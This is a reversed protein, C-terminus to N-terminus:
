FSQTFGYSFIIHAIRFVFQSVNEKNKGLGVSVNFDILQFMGMPRIQFDQSVRNIAFIAEPLSLSQSLKEVENIAYLADRMFHGNGIFGAIDRSPVIIKGINKAYLNAFNVLDADTNEAVILEVLKQIAPPNYFHFGIIRGKLNAKKDLENISGLMVISLVLNTWFLYSYPVLSFSLIVTIIIKLSAM